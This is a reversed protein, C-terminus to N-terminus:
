ENPLLKSRLIEHTNEIQFRLWPEALESFLFILFDPHIKIVFASADSADCLDTLQLPALLAFPTTKRLELLQMAPLRCSSQKKIELSFYQSQYFGASPIWSEPTKGLRRSTENSRCLLLGADFFPSLHSFTQLALAPFVNPLKALEQQLTKLDTSAEFTKVPRETATPQELISQLNKQWSDLHTRVLRTLREM